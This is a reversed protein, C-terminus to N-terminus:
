LFWQREIAGIDPTTGAPNPRPNGYLDTTPATISIGGVTATSAGAGLLTSVNSLSYDGNAADTFYPSSSLVNSSGLSITTNTGGDTKSAGGEIFSYDVSITTNSNWDESTLAYENTSGIISNAIVINTTQNSYQQWMQANYKETPNSSTINNWVTLNNFVYTGSTSSFNIGPHSSSTTNDAVLWNNYYMKKGDRSGDEIQIMWSGATNNRVDWNSLVADSQLDYMNLYMTRSSTSNNRVKVNAVDFGRAATIHIADSSGINNKFVLDRGYSYSYHAYWASGNSTSSNGDFVVNKLGIHSSSETWLAGGVNQNNQNNRFVVHAISLVRSNLVRVGGAYGSNTSNGNQITLGVLQNTATDSWSSGSEWRMIWGNNEGDIVTAAIHNTDNDFLYQSGIVLNKKIELSDEYYTGDLLIITDNTCAYDVATAISAFADTSSTGTNSNSGTTSVYYTDRAQDAIEVTDGVICGSNDEIYVYYKGSPMSSRTNYWSNEDIDWVGDYQTGNENNIGSRYEWWDVTNRDGGTAGGWRIEGNDGSLVSCNNNAYVLDYTLPDNLIIDESITQSRDTSVVEFTYTGLATALYSLDTSVVTGNLSWSYTYNTSNLVTAELLYACQTLIIDLDGQAKDSEYAGADPNSGAPDPRIVGALDLLPPTYTTSGITVPNKTALGIAPSTALLTGDTDLQPDQFVNSGDVDWTISSAQNSGTVGLPLISNRATVSNDSGGNNYIQYEPKSSKGLISNVLTLKNNSNWFSVLQADSALNNVVTTNILIMNSYSHLNLIGRWSSHYNDVLLNNTLTISSNSWANVVGYQSAYNNKWIVDIFHVDSSGGQVSAIAYCNQSSTGINEIVMNDFVPSANSVNIAGGFPYGTTSNGTMIIDRFVLNANNHLRIVSNDYSNLTVGTFTFGQITSSSAYEMNFLYGDGDADIKTSAIASSDGLRVLDSAIYLNKYVGSNASTEFDLEGEKYIGPLVYIKDGSSAVDIAKQITKYPSASSGNGTTNNGTKAVFWPEYLTISDTVSCGQDTVTVSYTGQATIALTSNTSADSWLYTSTSPAGPLSLTSTTTSGTLDLGSSSTLTFSPSTNLQVAITDSTLICNLDNDYSVNYYNGDTAAWYTAGSEIYGSVTSFWATSDFDETTMLQVSDCEALADSDEYAPVAMLYLAGNYEGYDNFSHQYIGIVNEGTGGNPEGQLWGPPQYDFPSGDTFVWTGETTLDNLRYSVLQRWGM